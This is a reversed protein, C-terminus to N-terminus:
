LCPKAKEAVIMDTEELDSTDFDVVVPRRLSALAAEFKLYDSLPM